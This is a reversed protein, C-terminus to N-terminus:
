ISCVSWVHVRVPTRWRTSFVLFIKTSGRRATSSGAIQCSYWFSHSGPCGPATSHAMARPFSVSPTSKVSRWHRKTATTPSGKGESNSWRMTSFCCNRRSVPMQPGSSHYWCCARRAILWVTPRTMRWRASKPQTSSHSLRNQLGCNWPARLEQSCPLRRIGGCGSSFPPKPFAKLSTCAKKSRKWFLSSTHAVAASITPPLSTAPPM